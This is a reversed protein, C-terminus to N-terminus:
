QKIILRSVDLPEVLTKTIEINASNELDHINTFTADTLPVGGLVGDYLIKNNSIVNKPVEGINNYGVIVSKTIQGNIDYPAYIFKTPDAIQKFLTYGNLILASDIGDIRNGRFDALIAGMVTGDNGNGSVDVCLDDDGDQFDYRAILAGNKYIEFWEMLPESYLAGITNETGIYIPENINFIDVNFIGKQVGDVKFIGSVADFDFIFNGPIRPTFTAVGVASSNAIGYWNGATLGLFYFGNADRAGFYKRADSSRTTAKFVVRTTNDPNIGTDVYSGLGDFDAVQVSGYTVNNNLASRDIFIQDVPTNGFVNQITPDFKKIKLVSSYYGRIM